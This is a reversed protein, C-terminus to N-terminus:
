TPNSTGRSGSAQNPNLIERFVRLGESPSKLAPGVVARLGFGCVGSAGSGEM